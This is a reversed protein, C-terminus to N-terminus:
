HAYNLGIPPAAATPDFGSRGTQAKAADNAMHGSLIKGVKKGDLYVDGSKQSGAKRPAIFNRKPVWRGDVFDEYRADHAGYASSMAAAEANMGFADKHLIGFPTLNKLSFARQHTKADYPHLFDYIAGGWTQEGTLKKAAPDIVNNNLWGGTKWGIYAAMFLAAAVGVGRLGGAVSLLAKGLGGGAELAIGIGQFGVKAMMLTGGFLLAASLAAFGLALTKMLGPHARAWLAMSNLWNTLKILMPILVPVVALRIATKFNEWQAGLAQRAVNPNNSIAQQYADGVSMTKRINAADRMFNQPKAAFEAVLAAALQNGRMVQNIHTLLQDESLNGYKKRLAPLMIQQVWEFPNSAALQAGRMSGVTTGQTTTKVATGPDVLGLSVLEPMSKKNIYGQIAWRYFAAQMPGVGRSGGGGGGGSANEQMLTPLVQYKYEDSLQYKAQRAYQFVSKFAEPTVRGQTAIIVRAMQEAQSEFTKQDKAAGIIDLAKAMSYALDKSNGSIRGESSAALVTQIRTVVPLAARAEGMTGLVNKLDLLASLNDNVTSTIVTHTNKWADGVANAIEVQTWGAMKLRNLTAAYEEAPKLAKAFIDLGFAGTAALAGGIMLRKQMSELTSKLRIAHQDARAFDRSMGLLGSSVHNILSVRVGIKYAEFM